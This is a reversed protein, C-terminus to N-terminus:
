VPPANRRQRVLWVAVGAAAVLAVIGIVLPLPLGGDDDSDDLPTADVTPTETPEPSAEETPSETPTPAATTTAPAPAPAPAPPPPPPPPPPPAAPPGQSPGITVTQPGALSFNPNVACGGPDSLRVTFAESPESVADAIVTIQFSQETSSGTFNVQQNLPNFDSGSQATGAATSVRVSSDAVAADRSVTVTVASGETVASPSVELSFRHCAASAAPAMAVVMVLALWVVGAVELRRNKMNGGQNDAGADGFPPGIALSLEGRVRRLAGSSAGKTQKM